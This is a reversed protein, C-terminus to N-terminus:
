LHFQCVERPSNQISLLHFAVPFVWSFCKQLFSIDTNALCNANPPNPHRPLSPFQYFSCSQLYQNYICAIFTLYIFILLGKIHIKKYFCRQGWRWKEDPSIPNGFPWNKHFFYLVTVHYKNIQDNNICFEQLILLFSINKMVIFYASDYANLQWLIFKSVYIHLFFLVYLLLWTYM